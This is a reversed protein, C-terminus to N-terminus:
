VVPKEEKKVLAQAFHGEEGTPLDYSEYKYSVGGQLQWGNELKRKVDQEFAVRTRGTIIMYDIM